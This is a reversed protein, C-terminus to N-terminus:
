DWNHCNSGNRPLQSGNTHTAGVLKSWHANSPLNGSSHPHAIQTWNSDFTITYTATSQAYVLSVNVFFLLMLFLGKKM